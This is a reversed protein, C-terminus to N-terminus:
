AIEEAATAEVEFPNDEYPRKGEAKLHLMWALYGLGMLVGQHLYQRVHQREHKRLADDPEVWYWITAGLTYGAWGLRRLLRPLPGEGQVELAGAAFRPLGWTLPWALVAGLLGALIVPSAWLLAVLKGGRTVPWPSRVAM